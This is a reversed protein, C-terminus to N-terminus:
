CLFTTFTWGWDFIVFVYKDLNSCMVYGTEVADMDNFSTM